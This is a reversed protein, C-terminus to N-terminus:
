KAETEVHVMPITSPEGADEAPEPERANMSLWNVIDNEFAEVAKEGFGKISRLGRPYDPDQGARVHEFRGVTKIGAGDLAEAQKATLKLAEGIPTFQWDIKSEAETEATEAFPLEKQPDPLKPIKPGRSILASLSQSAEDLDEKACKARRKASEHASTADAVWENASVIEIYHDYEAENLIHIRECEAKDSEEESMVPEGVLPDSLVEDVANQLIAEMANGPIEPDPVVPPVDPEKTKNSM